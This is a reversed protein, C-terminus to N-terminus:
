KKVKQILVRAFKREKKIYPVYQTDQVLEYGNELVGSFIPFISIAFPKKYDSPIYNKDVILTKADDYKKYKDPINKLPIIKM